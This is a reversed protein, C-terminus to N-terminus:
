RTSCLRTMSHQWLARRFNGPGFVPVVALEIALDDFLTTSDAFYSFPTTYKLVLMENAVAEGFKLPDEYDYANIM